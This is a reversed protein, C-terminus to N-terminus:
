SRKNVEIHFLKEYVIIYKAIVTAFKKKNFATSTRKNFWKVSINKGIGGSFILLEYTKQHKGPNYFLFM